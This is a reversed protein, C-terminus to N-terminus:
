LSFSSIYRPLVDNCRDIPWVANLKTEIETNIAQELPKILLMSSSDEFPALAWVCLGLSFSFRRTPFRPVFKIIAYYSNFTNTKLHSEDYISIFDRRSRRPVARGWRLLFLIVLDWYLGYYREFLLDSAVIM